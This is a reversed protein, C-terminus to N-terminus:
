AQQVIAATHTMIHTHVFSGGLIRPPPETFKEGDWLTIAGILLPIFQDFDLNRESRSVTLGFPRQVPLGLSLGLLAM